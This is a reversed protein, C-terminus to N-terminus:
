ASLEVIRGVSSCCCWWVGCCHEVWDWGRGAGEEGEGLGVGGGEGEGGEGVVDVLEEESEDEVLGGLRQERGEQGGVEKRGDVGMEVLARFYVPVHM